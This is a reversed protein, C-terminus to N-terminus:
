QPASKRGIDLVQELLEVAELPDVGQSTLLHAVGYLHEQAIPDVHELRDVWMALILSGLSPSAYSTRNHEQTTHSQATYKM